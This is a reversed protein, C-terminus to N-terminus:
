LCISVMPPCVTSGTIAYSCLGRRALHLGLDSPSIGLTFFKNLNMEIVRRLCDMFRGYQDGGPFLWGYGDGDSDTLGPDAFIYSALALVPCTAPSMLM